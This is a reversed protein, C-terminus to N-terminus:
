TGPLLVQGQDKSSCQMGQSTPLTSCPRLKFLLQYEGTRHGGEAPRNDWRKRVFAARKRALRNGHLALEPRVM